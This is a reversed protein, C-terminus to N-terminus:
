ADGMIIFKGITEILTPRAQPVLERIAEMTREARREQVLSFLISILVVMLIIAGMVVSSQDNSAFGVLFSLVAALILLVNFMNRFQILFKLYLARHKTPLQNPGFEKLRQSIEGEKLGERGTQFTGMLEEATSESWRPSHIPFPISGGENGAQNLDASISDGRFYHTKLTLM